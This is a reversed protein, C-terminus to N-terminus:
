KRDFYNYENGVTNGKRFPNYNYATEDTGAKYCMVHGDLWLVNTYKQHSVRLFGNGSDAFNAYCCLNYHGYVTNGISRTEGLLITSAPTKIETMKAGPLYPYATAGYYSSSGLHDNYGYSMRNCYDAYRQLLYSRAQNDFGHSPCILFAVNGTYKLAIMRNIWSDTSKNTVRRHPLWDNFDVTYSQFMVNLQKLNSACSIGRAKEKASNLAPLLMGALIAIIAIVILLEILTFEFAVSQRFFCNRKRMFHVGYFMQTETKRRHKM